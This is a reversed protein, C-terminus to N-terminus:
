CRAPFTLSAGEFLYGPQIGVHTAQWDHTGVAGAPGIAVSGGASVYLHGYLNVNPVSITSLIGSGAFVDGSDGTYVSPDYRGFNSEWPDQSDFSDTLIEYGQTDISQKAALVLPPLQSVAQPAVLIALGLVAALRLGPTVRKDRGSSARDM